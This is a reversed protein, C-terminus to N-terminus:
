YGAITQLLHLLIEAKEAGSEDAIAQQYLSFLEAVYSLAATEAENTQGDSDSVTRCSDPTAECIEDEGPMIKYREVVQYDGMGGM